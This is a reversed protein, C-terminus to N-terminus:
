EFLHEYIDKWSDVRIIGAPIDEHINYEHNM